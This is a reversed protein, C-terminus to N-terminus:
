QKKMTKHLIIYFITKRPLFIMMGKKLDEDRVLNSNLIKPPLPPKKNKDHSLNANLSSPPPPPPPTPLNFPPPIPINFPPPPPIHFSPPPVKLSPLPAPPPAPPVKLSPLPSPSPHSINKAILPPENKKKNQNQNDIFNEAKAKLSDSMANGPLSSKLDAPLNSITLSKETVSTIQSNDFSNDDNKKNKNLFALFYHSSFDLIIDCVCFILNNLMNEQDM